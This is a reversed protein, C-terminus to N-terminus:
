PKAEAATTPALRYHYIVEISDGPPILRDVFLELRGDRVRQHLDGPEKDLLTAGAPLRHVEIRRTRGEAAPWHRMAYELVGGATPHVLGSMTGECTISLCGGPPTPENLTLSYRFLGGEHVARFPIPRQRADTINTVNVFDSNVFGFTSWPTGTHNLTESTNRFRIMGDPLLELQERQVLDDKAPSAAIEPPTASRIHDNRRTVCLRDFRRASRLVAADRFLIPYTRAGAAFCDTQNQVQLHLHPHSTNGSNGCRAVPQGTHVSDGPAVLVSGQQLHALLVFRGDGLAIVLHNGAPHRDDTQGVPNDPLNNVAVAITGDAPAYLTEGWSPYSDQSHPNGTREQGDELRELDLADRQSPYDYHLNLLSSRGGNLVLWEGRFPASLAVGNSPSQAWSVRALQVAMFLSGAAFALNTVRFIRRGPLLELLLLLAVAGWYLARLGAYEEPAFQAPVVCMELVLATLLWFVWRNGLQFWHWRFEPALPKRWLRFELSRHALHWIISVLRVGVMLLLFVFLANFFIGGIKAGWGSLVLAVALIIDVATGAPSRRPAQDAKTRTETPTAGAAITEVDTKVQSAHQYRREPEKELAHLVVEDLRVDVRVKKSPPQFKGLPLEGTLLEYFVVGLSYIDARHDVTHPHEIQEPAMYHPTGVVDKGGTLSLDQAGPALIKAIGFDAIKVQGQRNLLINEPKIDRHVVGQQHAFQLADCVKPVITLAQDPELKGGQLLQRLTLGDVYEMVLYPYGGAEGYDYVAVIDPHNLRALARAERGFREAFAGDATGDARRRLLIKLAVFRDLKAQRAKYVAGMGGRGLCELIELQPFLRAIEELPPAPPPPPKAVRTGDPGIEEDQVETQTALNLGLLCRPCLGQLAEAAVITGCRSCTGTRGLENM